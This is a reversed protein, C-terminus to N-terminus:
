NYIEPQHINVQYYLADNALIFADMGGLLLLAAIEDSSYAEVQERTELTASVRWHLIGYHTPKYVGGVFRVVTPVMEGSLPLTMEFWDCGNSISYKFFSQFEAFTQPKFEITIPIMRQNCVERPRQRPLGTDMQTRSVSTEVTQSLDVTIGPFWSPWAQM